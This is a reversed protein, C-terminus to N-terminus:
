KEKLKKWLSEIQNESNKENLLKCLHVFESNVDFNGSKTSQEFKDAVEEAKKVAESSIGAMLAVNM